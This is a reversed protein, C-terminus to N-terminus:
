IDDACRGECEECCNCNESADDHVEYAFPCAHLYPTGSNMCGIRQCRIVSRELHHLKERLAKKKAADM